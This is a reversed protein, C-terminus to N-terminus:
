ESRRRTKMDVEWEDFSPFYATVIRVNRGEVDTAILVHFAREGYRGLVLYSPFYKDTPYSEVIEWNETGSIITARDIVRQGLRM